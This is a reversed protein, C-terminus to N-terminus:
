YKKSQKRARTRKKASACSFIKFWGRVGSGTARYYGWQRSMTTKARTLTTHFDNENKQTRLRKTQKRVREKFNEKKPWIHSHITISYVHYEQGDPRFIVSFIGHKRSLDGSLNSGATFPWWFTKKKKERKETGDSKWKESKGEIWSARTEENWWRKKRKRKKYMNKGNKM